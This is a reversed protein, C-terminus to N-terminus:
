SLILEREEESLAGIYKKLAVLAKARQKGKPLEPLAQQGNTLAPTPIDQMLAAPLAKAITSAMDVATARNYYQELMRTDTHATVARVTELPVGNKAALTVFTTRLCPFDYISASKMGVKRKVRTVKEVLARTGREKGSLIGSLIFRTNSIQEAKRLANSICALKSGTEAAIGRYSMGSAYLPMFKQINARCKSQLKATETAKLVLPLADKPSLEKYTPADEIYAGKADALAKAFIRKIRRTLADPDANYLQAAEPFVYIANKKKTYQRNALVQAFLPFIPINATEGTKRTKVKIAGQMTKGNCDWKADTISSWRLTCIDGKRLATSLGTVILEYLLPDSTQAEKLVLDIEDAKLPERHVEGDDKQSKIKINFPNAKVYPCLYAFTRELHSRIRRITSTTIRRGDETERSLYQFYAQADDVSVEYLPTKTKRGSNAWWKIFREVVSKQWKAFDTDPIADGANAFAKEYNKLIDKVKLKRFKKKNQAKYGQLFADGLDITKSAPPNEKLKQYAAEAKKRSDEFWKDGEDDMPWKPNSPIWSSPPKGKIPVNLRFSTREGGISMRCWWTTRVLEGSHPNRRVEIAM